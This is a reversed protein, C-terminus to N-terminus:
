YELDSKWPSETNCRVILINSRGTDSQEVKGKGERECM